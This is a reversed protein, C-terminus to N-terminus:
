TVFSTIRIYKKVADSRWRGMRMIQDESFGLGAATTAAGIRFSHSKIRKQDLGALIIVEKLVKSFKSRTIPSKDANVFLPGSRTGRMRLYNNLALVPCFKGPQALITLSFPVGPIQSKWNNICLRLEKVEGKSDALLVVDQVQILKAPDESANRITIEGVRLFAYFALLFMARFTMNSASEGKVLPLKTLLSDLMFKTIPLRSDKATKGKKIAGLLKKVIFSVGPDQLHMLRHCTTVAAVYTSITASALSKDFMCSLYRRESTPFPQRGPFYINM